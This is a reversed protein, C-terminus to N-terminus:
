LEVLQWALKAAGVQGAANGLTAKVLQLNERSTPKVRQQLEAWAAPFFYESSASIGGGIVIADPALVYVLSTLGIGLMKGYAQWFAIAEPDGARALQGLTEPEQGTARVIAGICLHQELSGRNGSNCAPGEPNLTILGLEGSSGNYGRYLQGNILIGGGVGTGLTLLILNPFQQGAGRWGEGIAACNADNEVVVPKDLKAELWDAVPVNVWGPLNIALRAVRRKADSPGPTGIGLAIAQREPDLQLIGEYIAQLTPEPQAPQPTPLNLTQLCNGQRDFRGLKIATGGLDIGIVQEPPSSPPVQSAPSPSVSSSPVPDTSVSM